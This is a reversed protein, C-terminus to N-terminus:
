YAGCSTRILMHPLHTLVEPPFATSSDIAQKSRYAYGRTVYSEADGPALAIARDVDAIARDYDGRKIYSQARKVLTRVVDAKRTRPDDIIRTCAPLVTDISIARCDKWDGRSAAAAGDALAAAALVAAAVAAIRMGAM